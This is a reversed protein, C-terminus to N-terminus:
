EDKTLGIFLLERETMYAVPMIWGNSWCEMLIKQYAAPCKESIEFGARPATVFGDDIHFRPDGPKITRVQNQRTKYTVSRELIFMWGLVTGFVASITTSVIGVKIFNL